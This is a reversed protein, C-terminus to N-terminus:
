SVSLAAAMELSSGYTLPFNKKWTPLLDGAQQSKLISGFTGKPRNSGVVVKVNTKRYPKCLVEVTM